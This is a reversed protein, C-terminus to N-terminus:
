RLLEWYMWGDRMTLLHKMIFFLVASLTLRFFADNESSNESRNM